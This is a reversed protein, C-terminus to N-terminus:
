KTNERSSLSFEIVYVQSIIDCVILNGLMGLMEIQTMLVSLAVVSPTVEHFTRSVLVMRGNMFRDDNLKDSKRKIQHNAPPLTM